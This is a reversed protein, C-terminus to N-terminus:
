LKKAKKASKATKATKATKAALDNTKIHRVLKPLFWCFIVQGNKETERIKRTQEGDFDRL